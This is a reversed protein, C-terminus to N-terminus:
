EPGRNRLAISRRTQCHKRFGFCVVPRQHRNSTGGLMNSVPAIIIKFLPRPIEIRSDGSIALPSFYYAAALILALGTFVYPMGRRLIQFIQIKIRAKKENIVQFSGLLFLLLAASLIAIYAIEFEFAILFSFVLM